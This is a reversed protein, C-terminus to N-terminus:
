EEENDWVVEGTKNDVELARSYFTYMDKEYILWHGEGPLGEPIFHGDHPGGVDGEIFSLQKMIRKM